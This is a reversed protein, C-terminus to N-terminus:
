AAKARVDLDSTIRIWRPCVVMREELNLRWASGSADEAAIEFGHRQFFDGAPSNKATPFFLGKLRRAGCRRAEEAIASLFATEVTRGIVRCSLLFTDLECEDGRFRLISAGVIGNDGFRDRVRACLVRADSRVALESIQQETYRRTTLNFQNTKQTLQAVRATTDATTHAVEVEQELSVYFEELTGVSLRAETRQAERAYYEARHADERSLLHREFVQSNQLVTAYDAPDVPLDLVTVEPLDSRIREREISNDDLFALSDVGVNLEAAIERLNQAKDNWNVRWCSIDSRRLLMDPHKDFVENADELNNKSCVALLIGRNRLDLLSRQLNRYYAGPYEHGIQLGQLGDEGVVGGWLTNDLDTVLVKCVKSSLPRIHRMWESALRPLHEAAIPMRMTLWKKEDHWALRGYRAVLGDYDVVFVGPYQKTEQQVTRNIARIAAVQGLEGQHDLIGASPWAPEELNQVLLSAESHRRFTRIWNGYTENVRVCEKEISEPSLTTFREWLAPTVDRTLTALLVIDPRFQYLAGQSDLIEQDVANFAGVYVDLQIGAAFAEAKLMPVAPEVTFTRLIALRCKALSLHEVIKECKSVVYNATAPSPNDRWVRCAAVRAKAWQKAALLSEVEARLQPERNM